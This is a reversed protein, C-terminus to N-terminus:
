LLDRRFRNNIMRYFPVPGAPSLEPDHELRDILEGLITRTIAPIDARRAAEIPLWVLEELEDSPGGGPLRLAINTAFVALFRTDYRRVRGPPTIARALLRLGELSPVIEHEVFAKWDPKSTSFSGKRGILLGAEEYTERLASMAIARARTPTLRKGTGGVLKEEVDPHLGNDIAVRGDAPDTRGGPFVFKGPM